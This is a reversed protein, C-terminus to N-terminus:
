SCLIFLKWTKTIYIFLLSCFIPQNLIPTLLFVPFGILGLFGSFFYGFFGFRFFFRNFRNCKQFFRGTRNPKPKILLFGFFGFRVLLSLFGSFFRALVPFFRTLGTQVPKQWLFGFRFRDTQGPKPETETKKEFFFFIPKIIKKSLFRISCFIIM